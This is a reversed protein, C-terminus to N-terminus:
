RVSQNFYVRSPTTRNVVFADPRGDGNLDGLAVGQGEDNGLRLGSDSFHGNGDNEWVTNPRSVQWESNIVFADWDGDGDLDGLRVGSNKGAGIPQATMEFHSKGDTITNLWVRNPFEFYSVFADLSGNGDLDGLAVERSEQYGLLQEGQEFHGSGDNIWIETGSDYTGLIVDLDGDDDIDGLAGKRSEQDGGLIQGSDTFHGTGDNLYVRHGGNSGDSLIHNCLFADLYGDGNLDGVVVMGNTRGITQELEFQGNGQNFWIENGDGNVYDGNAVFADLDGDQDFDGLGVEYSIKNGLEQGSDVFHGQGDNLYVRNPAPHLYEGYTVFADLDGDNDLDGLAVDSASGVGIAQGSDVFSIPSDPSSTPLPSAPEVTPSETPLMSIATPPLATAAPACAVLVVVLTMFLALIWFPNKKM